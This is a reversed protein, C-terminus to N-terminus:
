PDCDPITTDAGCPEACKVFKGLFTNDMEKAREEKSKEVVVVARRQDTLQGDDEVTTDLGCFYMGCFQIDEYIAKLISRNNNNNGKNKTRKYKDYATDIGTTNNSSSSPNNKSSNNAASTMSVTSVTNNNNSGTKRLPSAGATSVAVAAVDAGSSGTANKRSVYPNPNTPNQPTSSPRLPTSSTNSKAQQQKQQQYVVDHDDYKETLISNIFDMGDHDNSDDHGDIGESIESIVSQDCREHIEGTFVNMNNRHHHHHHHHHNDGRDRGLGHLDPGSFLGEDLLLEDIDPPQLGGLAGLIGGNNGGHQQQGELFNWSVNSSMGTRETTVTVRDFSFDSVESIYGSAATRDSSPLGYGGLPNDGSLNRQHGAAGAAASSNLNTSTLNSYPNLKSSLLLNKRMGSATSSKPSDDFVFKPSNKPSNARGGFSSRNPTSMPSSGRSGSGVSMSMSATTATTGSQDGMSKNLPSDIPSSPPVPSAPRQQQNVIASDNNKSNGKSMFRSKFLARSKKSSSKRNPTSSSSNNGGNSM